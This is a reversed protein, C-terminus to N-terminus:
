SGVLTPLDVAQLGSKQLTQLLAPLVTHIVPRNNSDIASRGDHVLLIDGAKLNCTLRDHIRAPDREWTDFGRHSWATYDLGREALLPALWPNRFGFPARFFRPARGSLDALTRQADDIERALGNSGLLAFHYNHHDSHNEISHGARAVAAIDRHHLRAKAGICFFSAKAGYEALTKLVWPTLVPDPGDDFTLGVYPRSTAVRNLTPGVLHCRPCLCAGALAAQTFAVWGICEALPVIHALAGVCVLGDTLNVANFIHRPAIKSM